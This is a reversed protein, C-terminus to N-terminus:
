WEKEGTAPPPTSEREEVPPAPEREEYRNTPQRQIQPVSIRRRNQELFAQYNERQPLPTPYSVPISIAAKTVGRIFAAFQLAPQDHVFDADCRMERAMTSADAASVLTCMKTSTNSHISAALSPTCQGMEQHALIVGANYKRVEELMSSIDRSFCSAAEDIFFLIPKRETTAARELIAKLILSVIFKSFSASGETKLFDKASDVLIITGRNLESFFDVKTEPSCFMAQMLPESIIAQLRYRIQDRTQDFTKSMFDKEFFERQLEPLHQIARGYPTPDRMLDLMDRITANRGEVTPLLLLMRICARFFVDQKGTLPIGLNQFLNIFTEIAGATVQERTVDDYSAMREENLAFPNLSIPHKLSDRPDLLIVDRGLDARALKQVLQSHPDILVISCDQMSFHRILNEIAVSKGGGSGALLHVHQYMQKIDLRLPVPTLLLDHFPTGRLYVDVIEDLPLDSETAFKLKKKPDSPESGSAYCLNTWLHGRLSQLYNPTTFRDDHTELFLNHIFQKPRELVYVLPVTFPSPTGTEPLRNILSTFTQAVFETMCDGDGRGEWARLTRQLDRRGELSLRHFDPERPFQEDALLQFTATQLPKTLVHTSEALANYLRHAFGDPDFTKEDRIRCYLARLTEIERANYDPTYNFWIFYGIIGLVLLLFILGM